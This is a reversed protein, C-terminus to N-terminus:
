SNMSRTWSPLFKTRLSSAIATRRTGFHKRQLEAVADDFDRVRGQKIQEEARAISAATVDDLEEDAAEVTELILNAVAAEIVEQESDYRGSEVLKRVFKQYNSSLAINM